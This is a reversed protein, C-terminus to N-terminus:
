ILCFFDSGIEQQSQNPNLAKYAPPPVQVRVTNGGFSKSDEEDALELMGARICYSIVNAGSKCTLKRFFYLNLCFYRLCVINFTRKRYKKMMIM